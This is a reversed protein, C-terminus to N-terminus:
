GAPTATGAAEGNGRSTFTEIISLQSAVQARLTDREASAADRQATLTAAQDRLDVLQQRVSDRETRLEAEVQNAKEVDGQLQDRQASVRATEAEAKALELATAHERERAQHLERGQEELKARAGAAEAQAQRAADAHEGLRRAFDANVRALEAAQAQRAAEHEAHVRELEATQAEIQQTMQESGARLAAAEVAAENLAAQQDTIQRELSEIKTADVEAEAELQVIAAVAEDRLKTAMKVEADAKQRIAAIEKAAENTVAQWIAAFAAKVSEPQEMVVPPASKKSASWEDLHKYITTLSGGGLEDRLLTATVEQGSAALRDAAQFVQEKTHAAKRGM